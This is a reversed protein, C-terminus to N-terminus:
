CDNHNTGSEKSLPFMRNTTHCQLNTNNGLMVYCFWCLAVCCLRVYGLRIFVHFMSFLFLIIYIVACIYFYIILIFCLFLYAFSRQFGGTAYGPLKNRPPQTWCIWNLLSLSRPDPPRLGRTLPEPHLQLKTCSLENWITFNNSGCHLVDGM